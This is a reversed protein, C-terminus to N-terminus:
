AAVARELEERQSGERGDRMAPWAPGTMLAPRGVRTADFVHIVRLAADLRRALLCAASLADSSEESADYGM